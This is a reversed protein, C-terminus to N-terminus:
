KKGISRKLSDSLMAFYIIIGRIVPYSHPNAGLLGLGNESSMLFAVDVLVGPFITDIGGLLVARM